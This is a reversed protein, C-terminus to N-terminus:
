LLPQFRKVAIFKMHFGFGFFLFYELFGFSEVVGVVELLFHIEVHVIQDVLALFFM